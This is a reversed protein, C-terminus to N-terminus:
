AHTKGNGNKVLREEDDSYTLSRAGSGFPNPRPPPNGEQPQGGGGFPVMAAPPTEMLDPLDRLIQAETRDAMDPRVRQVFEIATLAGLSWLERNAKTTAALADAQAKEADASGKEDVLSPAEWELEFEFPRGVLLSRFEFLYKVSPELHDRIEDISEGILKAQETSLRETTSWTKGLMWSPLGFVSLLEEEIFRGDGQIQLNEGAAGLIEIRFKGAAGFDRTQGNAKALVANELGTLAETVVARAKSGNPDSLGEPPDWIIVYTPVGYREWTEGLAALMKNLIQSVTPLSALISTGNPNDQALDHVTTLFLERPELPAPMGFPQVQILDVGYGPRPRLEISRPHLTQLAFVERYRATAIIEAHARGYLLHDRVHGPFWNGGGTSIQNVNVREWWDMTEKAASKNDSVVKPCGVLQTLIRLAASVSPILQPIQEILFLNQAQPIRFFPSIFGGPGQEWTKRARPQVLAVDQRSPLQAATPLARGFLRQFWNGSSRAAAENMDTM